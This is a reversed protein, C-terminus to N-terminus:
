DLGPMRRRRRKTQGRPAGPAKESGQPAIAAAQSPPRREDKAAKVANGVSGFLRVLTSHAVLYKGKLHFAERLRTDAASLARSEADSPWHGVADRVYQLSRYVDAPRTAPRNTKLDPHDARRAVRGETGRVCLRAAHDVANAYTGYFAELEGATLSSEGSARRAKVTERYESKTPMRKSGEFFECFVKLREWRMVSPDPFAVEALLAEAIM